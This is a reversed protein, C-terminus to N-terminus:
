IRRVAEEANWVSEMTQKIGVCIDSIARMIFLRSSPFRPYQGKLCNWMCYGIAFPANM